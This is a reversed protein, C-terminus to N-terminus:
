VAQLPFTMVFGLPLFFWSQSQREWLYSQWCVPAQGQEWCGPTPLWCIGEASASRCGWWSWCGSPQLLSDQNFQEWGQLAREAPLFVPELGVPLFASMKAVFLCVAKQNEKKNNNKKKLDADALRAGVDVFNLKKSKNQWCLESGTACKWGM